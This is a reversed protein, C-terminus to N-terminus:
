RYLLRRISCNEPALVSVRGGSEAVGTSAGPRPSQMFRDIGPESFLMSGKGVDGLKKHHV